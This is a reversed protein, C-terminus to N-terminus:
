KLRHLKEARQKSMAESTWDFEEVSSEYSYQFKKHDYKKNRDYIPTNKKTVFSLAQTAPEELNRIEREKILRENEEQL